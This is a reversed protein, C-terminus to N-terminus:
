CTRYRARWFILARLHPRQHVRSYSTSIVQNSVCWRIKEFWSYIGVLTWGCGRHSVISTRCTCLHSQWGRRQYEIDRLFIRASMEMERKIAREDMRKRCRLKVEDGSDNGKWVFLLALIDESAFIAMMTPEPSAPKDAAEVSTAFPIWTVSRSREGLGPPFLMLAEDPM